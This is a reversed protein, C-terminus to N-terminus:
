KGIDMKGMAFVETKDKGNEKGSVTAILSDGKMEYRIKQPFDHEPNEFVAFQNGISTLNFDVPKGDNQVSVTATYTLKDGEQLIVTIESFQVEGGAVFTTKGELTSDNVQEWKETLLGEDSYSTWIGSVWALQKLKEYSPKADAPKTDAPNGTNGSCAATVMAVALVFPTFQKM